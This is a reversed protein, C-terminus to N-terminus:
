ARPLELTVTTGKDAQSVIDVSGGSREAIHRVLSLGLGTGGTVRTRSRDVRYFREFVRPLDHAPIGIGTDTVSICVRATEALVGVTVSGHETYAVANDLLNDLAVAVDTPDALVYVDEGSVATLDSELALGKLRASSRHAMMSLDVARRVDAISGPQPTTELRSLDLLDAVLRRLRDAENEIQGLFAMATEDDGDAGATRASEALLLMGATPTKLEHSANAVFDTRVRDLRMRETTDTVIVLRREEPANSATDPLPLVTVRYWHGNPDPGVDRGLPRPEEGSASELLLGQAL